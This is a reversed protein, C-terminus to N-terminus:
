ILNDKEEHELQLADVGNPMLYFTSRILALTKISRKLAKKVFYKNRKKVETVNKIKRFSKKVYISPTPEPRPRVVAVQHVQHRAGINIHRGVAIRTRWYDLARRDSTVDHVVLATRLGIDVDKDVELQGPALRWLEVQNSKYHISKNSLM